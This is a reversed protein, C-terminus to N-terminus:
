ARKKMKGVIEIYQYKIEEVYKILVIYQYFQNIDIENEGIDNFISPNIARLVDNKGIIGKKFGFFFITYIGSLAYSNDTSFNFNKNITYLNSNEVENFWIIKYHVLESIDRKFMMQVSKSEFNYGFENQYYAQLQKKTLGDEEIIKQLIEKIRTEPTYKIEEELM